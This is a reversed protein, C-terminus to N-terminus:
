WCCAVSLLCCRCVVVVVLLCVVVCLSYCVVYAFYDVFMLCCVVLVLCWCVVSLPRRVVLVCCAVFLWGSFWLVDARCDVLLLCYM